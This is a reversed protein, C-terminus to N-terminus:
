IDYTVIDEEPITSTPVRARRRAEFVDFARASAVGWLLPVLLCLVAYASSSMAM